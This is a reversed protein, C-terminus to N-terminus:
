GAGAVRLYQAAGSINLGWSIVNSLGSPGGRYILGSISTTYGTNIGVVVDSYGDGDVDGAGAVDTVYVSEQTVWSPTSYLGGASGLYLFARGGAPVGFYKALVLVDDYGDHNVDGASTVRWGFRDDATWQAVWAPTDALLAALGNSGSMFLAAAIMASIVALRPTKPIM